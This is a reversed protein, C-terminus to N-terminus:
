SQPAHCGEEITQLLELIEPLESHWVRMQFVLLEPQARHVKSIFECTESDEIEEAILMAIFDRIRIMELAERPTAVCTLEHGSQKLAAMISDSVGTAGVYLIKM